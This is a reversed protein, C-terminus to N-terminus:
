KVHRLSTLAQWIPLVILTVPLVQGFGWESESGEVKQGPGRDYFLVGTCLGWSVLLLVLTLTELKVWKQGKKQFYPGISLVFCFILFFCELFVLVTYAKDLGSLKASFPPRLHKFWWPQKWACGAPCGGSGSGFEYGSIGTGIVGIWILFVALFIAFVLVLSIRIWLLHPRHDFYDRLVVMSALHTAASFWLLEGVIELHYMSISCQKTFTVVGMLLGLLLQQDALGVIYTELYIRKKDRSAYAELQRFRPFWKALAPLSHLTLSAILTCLANACFGIVVEV